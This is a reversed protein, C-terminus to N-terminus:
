STLTALAARHLATNSTLADGGSFTQAGALSTLTGGAERVIPVLAALDWPNALPEVALDIAGEAVLCHQWFDGFARTEWVAQCLARYGDGPLNRADTTSLYADALDSVGSVTIRRPTGGPVDTTWAGQGDAAWWRRGLAPASVVGVDVTADVTLGILTAWVPLGRSFNKTGDIPDLVWGRGVGAVDGGGEEGLVADGPREAAILARLAEEAATDADTVPTRDPKRTVRLDSARFRPLTIADATDALRLALDLDATSM